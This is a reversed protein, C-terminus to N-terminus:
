NAPAEVVVDWAHSITNEEVEVRPTDGFVFLKKGYKEEEKPKGLKKELMGFLPDKFAPNARYDLSTRYRTVKGADDFTLNVRTWYSGYETPQFDLYASPKAGGLVALKDKDKGMMAEMKKRDAEADAQSKEVLEGAYSTRLDDISAGLIALKSEFAFGAGDAGLFKEVPTYATFEVKMDGGFGEELTARLGTEPNFWYSIPKKINTEGKTPPGWAKTLAAEAKDKPLDFYFRGIKKTKKDFSVNFRVDPYEDTKITDEDPMAPFVAKAEDGTMGPKLGKYPAPLTPATGAFLTEVPKAEVKTAEAKQESKAPAGSEGAPKDGCASLALGGAVFAAITNRSMSM